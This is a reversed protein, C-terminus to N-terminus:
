YFNHFEVNAFFRFSLLISSSFRHVSDVFPWSPSPTTFVFGLRIVMMLIGFLTVIDIVNMLKNSFFCEHMERHHTKYLYQQIERAFITTRQYWNLCTHKTQTVYYNWKHAESIEVLQFKKFIIRTKREVPLLSISPSLSHYFSLSVNKATALLMNTYLVDIFIFMSYLNLTWLRNGMDCLNSRARSFRTKNLLDLPNDTMWLSM